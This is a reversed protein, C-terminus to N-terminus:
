ESLEKIQNKLNDNEKNLAKVQSELNAVYKEKEIRNKEAELFKIENLEDTSQKLEIILNDNNLKLTNIYSYLFYGIVGIILLVGLSKLILPIMKKM